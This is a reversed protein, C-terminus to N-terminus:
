GFTFAYAEVNDDLFHLELYHEGPTKQEVLPYLKDEDITIKGQNIGDLFVEVEGTQGEVPNMVLFVNKSQYQFGLKAGASPKSYYPFITWNGDFAYQNLEFNEPFSFNGEQEKVLGEPSAFGKSRRHGLYTEPTDSENTYSQNDIKDKVDHGAERLLSQIWEETEDYDGEGFHTYRINGEADVLYKAPWYRNEYARWTKYDNDQYIPYELEFDAIAKELNRASKEFEFEPTHVGLIVLGNDSYKDHWDRLYPLTRICNICSYTWFDVLVVQGRLAELTLPDTNFWEGSPILEPAPIADELGGTPMKHNLQEQVLKNNEVSTLATGYKPFVELIYTQFKRDLNFTLAMAVLILLLGFFQQIRGLNKLLWPVRNLLSRGGVMILFMPIATGFAYALTVFLATGNVTGTLALAIVSALIPGVCPTWILGLSMGVLVGGFFGAAPNGKAGRSQMWKSIVREYLHKLQPVFLVLGFVLIIAISLGRIANASIGTANVLSTLFLTFFTFSLIFGSVIGLPYRKGGVTAGSLVIPLVPLICPSLVTVIGALFAFLILIHM